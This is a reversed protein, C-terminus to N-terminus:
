VGDDGDEGMAGMGFSVIGVVLNMLSVSFNDIGSNVIGLIRMAHRAPGIPMCFVIGVGM